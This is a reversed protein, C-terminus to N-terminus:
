ILLLANSVILSLTLLLTAFGLVAVSFYRRIHYVKISLYTHFILVGVAFVIFALMDSTSGNSFADLRLQSRYQVIYGSSSREPDLQLLILLSSIFALFANVGLLLLVIRDHLYKKPTAM